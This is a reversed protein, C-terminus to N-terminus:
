KTLKSELFQRVEQYTAEVVGSSPAEPLYKEKQVKALWTLIQPTDTDGDNQGLVDIIEEGTKGSLTMKKEKELYLVLLRFLRSYFLKRDAV